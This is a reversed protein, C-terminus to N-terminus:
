NIIAFALAQLPTDKTSRKKQLKQFPKLFFVITNFFTNIQIQLPKTQKHKQFTAIVIRFWEVM